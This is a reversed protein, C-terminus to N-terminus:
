KDERNTACPLLERAPSYRETSECEIDVRALEGNLLMSENDDHTNRAVVEVHTQRV